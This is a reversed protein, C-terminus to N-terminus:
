FTATAVFNSLVQYSGTLTTAAPTAAFHLMIAEDDVAGTSSAISDATGDERWAFGTAASSGFTTTGLGDYQANRVLSRSGANACTYTTASVSGCNVIPSTMGFDEVGAVFAAQTTGAGNICRDVQSPAADCTASPVRLSRLQNSGSGAEPIYSVNVGSSANTRVMAAGVCNNGTTPAAIAVPSINIATSSLVGLGVTNGCTGSGTFAASCDAAISTTEDNTTTGGVCFQLIEQVVATITLSNATSLAVGGDDIHTGAATPTYADAAATTTYTVIRAYFTGTTSTNTIPLSFTLDSSTSVSTLGTVHTLVTRGIQDSPTDSVDFTVNQANHSVAVTAADAPTVMGTPQTCTNNLIPSNSCFDVVIGLINTAATGPRFSVAATTATSVKSSGLTIKRLTVTGANAKGVSLLPALSSAALIAIATWLVLKRPVSNFNQISGIRSM